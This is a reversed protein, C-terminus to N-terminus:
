LEEDEKIEEYEKEMALLQDQMDFIEVQLRANEEKLSAAQGDKVEQLKMLDKLYPQIESQKM